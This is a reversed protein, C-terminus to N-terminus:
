ASLDKFYVLSLRGIPKWPVQLTEKHQWGNRAYFRQAGLNDDGTHLWIRMCGRRLAEQEITRLLLSGIGQSRLPRKVEINEVYAGGSQLFDLTGGQPDWGMDIRAATHVIGVGVVADAQIAVLIFAEGDAVAPLCQELRVGDKADLLAKLASLEQNPNLPRITTMSM